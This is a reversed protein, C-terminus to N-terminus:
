YENIIDELLTICLINAATGRTHRQVAPLFEARFEEQCRACLGMHTAQCMDKRDLRDMYRYMEADEVDWPTRSGCNKKHFCKGGPNRFCVGDQLVYPFHNLQQSLKTENALRGVYWRHPKGDNELDQLPLMSRTPILVM